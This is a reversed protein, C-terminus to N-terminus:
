PQKEALPRRIRKLCHKSSSFASLGRRTTPRPKLLRTLSPLPPFSCDDDELYDPMLPLCLKTPIVMLPTVAAGLVFRHNCHPLKPPPPLALRVLRPSPQLPPSLPTATAPPPPPTTAHVITRDHLADRQKNTCHSSSSPSPPTYCTM